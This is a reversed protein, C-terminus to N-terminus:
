RHLTEFFNWSQYPDGIWTKEFVHAVTMEIMLFSVLLLAFGALSFMLLKTPYYLLPSTEIAFVVAAIKAM